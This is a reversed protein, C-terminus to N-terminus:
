GTEYEESRDNTWEGMDWEANCSDVNSGPVGDMKQCRTAATMYAMNGPKSSVQNQQM